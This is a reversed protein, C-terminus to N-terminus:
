NSVSVVPQSLREAPVIEKPQSPSSWLLKMVAAGLRDYYEVQLDVRENARLTITASDETAFHNTWNNILLEGNVWLRVGEDSFTYFTYTEDYLPELQGRWRVSFSDRGLRSDPAGTGWNFDIENDLRTFRRSSLDSTEFYDARLGM